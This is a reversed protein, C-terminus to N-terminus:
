HVEAAARAAVEEAVSAGGNLPGSRLAMPPESVRASLFIPVFRAAGTASANSEKCIAPTAM